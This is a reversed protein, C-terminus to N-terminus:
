SPFDRLATDLRASGDGPLGFRLWTPEAPFLRTLIGRRGLHDHLALARVDAVLHFLSTGGVIELGSDRLLAGLAEAQRALDARTRAVWRADRLAREGIALAPGSVPWPGLSQRLGIALDRPALAFGLRLGALGFFKGFSRLIVLGPAGSHPALSLEPTGDCFAEDLILAGGRGAQRAALDQLLAPPLRRGDPNNPNAVVLIAATNESDDWRPIVSVRRGARRWTEALESYTPGIVAVDGAPFLRPLLQIIAQSGPAAVVTEPDRVGYHQAAAQRLLLDSGPLRHWCDPPLDAVPYPRPNIGTSLDLWGERSRGFRAEAGVLDGGHLSDTM